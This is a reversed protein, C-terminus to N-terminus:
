RSAKQQKKPHGNQECIATGPDMRAGIQSTKQTGPVRPFLSLVNFLIRNECKPPAKQLYPKRPAFLHSFTVFQNFKPPERPGLKPSNQQKQHSQLPKNKTTKKPAWQEWLKCNRPGNPSWNAISKPYRPVKSIPNFRKLPYSKWVKSTSKAPITEPTCFSAFFYCNQQVKSAGPDLIQSWKQLTSSKKAIQKKNNKQTGM